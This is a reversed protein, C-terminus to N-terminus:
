QARILNVQLQTSQITSVIEARYALDEMAAGTEHIRQESLQHSEGAFQGDVKAQVSKLVDALFM